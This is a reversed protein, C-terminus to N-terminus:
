VALISKRFAGGFFFEFFPKLFKFDHFDKSVTAYFGKEQFLLKDM